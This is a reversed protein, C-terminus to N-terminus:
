LSQLFLELSEMEKKSLNSTKGRKNKHNFTSIADQITLARGDHLYPATRWLEVLSPTDFPINKEDGKGTGVLHTKMDTYYPTPHCKICGAKQFIKKGQEIKVVNDSNEFVPGKEPQMSKLYEDISTAFEEDADMFHIYKMGARVAIEASSRIGRAMAPPTVHSLLLSKTNKPNGIGDNLLDWNFADIRGDPHCSGCSQWGQFCITADNFLREGKHAPTEKYDVIQISVPKTPNLPNIIQLDNSFFGAVLIM